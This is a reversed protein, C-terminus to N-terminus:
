YGHDYPDFYLVCVNNIEKTDLEAEDVSICNYEDITSMTTSAVITGELVWIGTLHDHLTRPSASPQSWAGSSVLVFVIAWTVFWKKWNM